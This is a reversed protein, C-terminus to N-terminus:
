SLRGPRAGEASMAVRQRFLRIHESTTGCCGGVISAGARILDPVAAAMDEPSEDYVVRERELRPQGANPQVMIPRETHERYEAVLRVYDGVHLGTGCNCGVVDVELANLLDVADGPKVGTMTRFAGDATRDFSLSVALPVGPRCSRVAEIATGIEDLATMTELAIGDAGGDLLGTTQVAIALALDGPSTSGLPALFGGFPGIDGLVYGDSGICDRALRAAARNIEYAREELGYRALVLGSAQFSNTLLIDSRADVYRQHIACVRDPHELNWADGSDGYALGAEALQTGMAGDAILVRQRIAELLPERM